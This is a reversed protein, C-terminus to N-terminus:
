MPWIGHEEEGHRGEDRTFPTSLVEAEPHVIGM